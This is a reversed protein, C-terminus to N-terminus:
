GPYNVFSYTSIGDGEFFDHYKRPSKPRSPARGSSTRHSCLTIALKAESELWFENDIECAACERGIGAQHEDSFEILLEPEGRIDDITDGVRPVRPVDRVVQVREHALAEVLDGGPILVDIVGVPQPVIRRKLHDRGVAARREPRLRRERPQLIRDLPRRRLADFGLQFGFTNAVHETDARITDELSAHRTDHRLRLGPVIAGAPGDVDTGAKPMARLRPRVGTANEDLNVDSGLSEVQPKHDRVPAATGGIENPPVVVAPRGLIPDFLELEIDVRTAEATMAEARVGAPQLEMAEREQQEGIEAARDEGARAQRRRRDARDTEVQEFDGTADHATDTVEPKMERGVPGAVIEEGGTM